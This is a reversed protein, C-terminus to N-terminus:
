GAAWRTSCARITPAANLGGERQSKGWHVGGGREPGALRALGDDDTERAVRAVAHLDRPRAKGDFRGEGAVVERGEGIEGGLDASGGPRRVAHRRELDLEPRVVDHRRAVGDVYEHGHVRGGELDFHLVQAAAPRDQDIRAGEGLAVEGLRP